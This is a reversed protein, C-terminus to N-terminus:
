PHDPVVHSPAADKTEMCFKRLDTAVEAIVELWAAHQRYLRVSKYWPMANGTLGFRWLPAKPTLVWCPKGLGGALNVVATAVTIVLDLEAVLAATDDYDQSQVGHPWHHIDVGAARLEDVEPADKYQLSVFTADQKLIPMLDKLDLSRRSYGTRKIGGTWALGVKPKDGLSDLLARWQIRRQPDAVLYPTGPFAEDSNRYFGPLSGLAVSADVPYEAPWRQGGKILVTGYTPCGFSRRLLGELKASCEIIVKNERM